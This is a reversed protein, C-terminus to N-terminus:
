FVDKPDNYTIDNMNDHIRKQLEQMRYGRGYVKPTKRFADRAARLRGYLASGQPITGSELIQCVEVYSLNISIEETM